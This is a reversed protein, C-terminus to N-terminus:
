GKWEKLFWGPKLDQFKKGSSFPSEINELEEVQKWQMDSLSVDENGMHM